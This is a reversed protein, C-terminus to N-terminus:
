FQLMIEAAALGDSIVLRSCALVTAAARACCLLAVLLAEEPAGALAFLAVWAVPEAGDSVLLALALLLLAVVPLVGM